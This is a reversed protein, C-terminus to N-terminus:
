WFTDMTVNNADLIKNSEEEEMETMVTSIAQWINENTFPANHRDNYDVLTELM